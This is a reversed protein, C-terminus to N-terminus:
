TEYSFEERSTLQLEGDVLEWIETYYTASGDEGTECLPLERRALILDSDGWGGDGPRLVRGEPPILTVWVPREIDQNPVVEELISIKRRDLRLEGDEDPVYYDTVYQSGASGSKYEATLEGSAPHSEVGQLTFVYRYQEAAPDWQWCYYPITNNAVWGFLGFDTNGDFNLDLAKMTEEASWCNTYDFFEESLGSDGHDWEIETAERVSITQLLNKGDYVRVERVGYNSENLKKGVAELTLTRGGSLPAEQAALVTDGTEELEEPTETDGVSGEDEPETVGASPPGNEEAEETKGGCSTCLLALLLICILATKKM